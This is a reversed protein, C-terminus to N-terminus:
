AATSRKRSRAASPVCSAARCRVRGVEADQLKRNAEELTEEPAAVRRIPELLQEAFRGATARPSSSRLAQVKMGNSVEAMATVQAGDKKFHRYYRNPVNETTFVVLSLALVQIRV